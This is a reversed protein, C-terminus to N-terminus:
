FKTRSFAGRSRVYITNRDVTRRHYTIAAYVSGIPFAARAGTMVVAIKGRAIEPKGGPRSVSRSLLPEDGRKAARGEIRPVSQARVLLQIVRFTAAVHAVIITSYVEANIAGRGGRRRRM